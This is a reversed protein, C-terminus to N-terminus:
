FAVGVEAHPPLFFNWEEPVEINGSPSVTYVASAGFIPGAKPSARYLAKQKKKDLASHAPSRPTVRAAHITGDQGAIVVEPKGDTTGISGKHDCVLVPSPPASQGKALLLSKKKAAKPSRLPAPSIKAEYITGDAAACVRESEEAGQVIGDECLSFITPDEALKKLNRRRLHELHRQKLSTVSAEPSTAGEVVVGQSDLVRIGERNQEDARFRSRYEQKLIEKEQATSKPTSPTPMSQNTHIMGDHSVALPM